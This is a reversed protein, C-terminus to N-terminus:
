EVLQRLSPAQPRSLRCPFDTTARLRGVGGDDGCGGGRFCAPRERTNVGTPLLAYNCRSTPNSLELRADSRELRTLRPVPAAHSSIRPWRASVYCDSRAALDM